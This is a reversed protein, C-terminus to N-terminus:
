ADAPRYTAVGIEGLPQERGLFLDDDAARRDVLRDRPPHQGIARADERRDEVLHTRAEADNAMPHAALAGELPDLGSASNDAEHVVEQIDSPDRRALDLQPQFDHPQPFHDAPAHLRDAWRDFCPAVLMAM